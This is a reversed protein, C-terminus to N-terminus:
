RVQVDFYEAKIGRDRVVMTDKTAYRINQDKYNVTYDLYIASRDSGGLSNKEGKSVFKGTGAIDFSANNGTVSCMGNSAFTLILTVTVNAGATNKITIPLNVSSLSTTTTSVVQDNEVYQAHRASSTTVGASSTIQDLGRRLYNAQWPNVYKIAYLVTSKTRLISDVGTVGTMSLPIVYSRTIARPDAFFADTLQVDVGGIISGSPITIKNSALQYYQTPMADIKAGGGGFYLNNLLTPDVKFDIVVNKKNEYVGGMTAKISVKRQNDLTNDVILDEGLVVTRVPYQTAFYVNSFVYDPFPADSNKCSNFLACAVALGIIYLKNVKM